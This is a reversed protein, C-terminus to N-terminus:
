AKTEPILVAKLVEGTESPHVAHDGVAVKSVKAGVKEVVGAGEHGLIAPMATQFYQDRVAIDTHCVGVGLIRVLVEDDRPAEIGVCVIKFPGGKAPVVATNFQM